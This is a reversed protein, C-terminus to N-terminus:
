EVCHRLGTLLSVDALLAGITDLGVKVSDVCAHAHACEKEILLLEGSQNQRVHPCLVSHLCTTAHAGEIALNGPWHLFAMESCCRESHLFRCYSTLGFLCSGKLIFPTWDFHLEM